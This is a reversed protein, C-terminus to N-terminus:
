VRGAADAENLRRIGWFFLAAGIALPTAGLLIGTAALLEAETGEALGLLRGATFGLVLVGGLTAVVAGAGLLILSSTRGPALSVAGGAPAVRLRRTLRVALIWEGVVILPAMATLAVLLPVPASISERSRGVALLPFDYLGHLLIPLLLAWTLFRGREASFKARGVFYGMIAGLFAHSPV